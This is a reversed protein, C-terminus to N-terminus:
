ESSVLKIAVRVSMNGYYFLLETGQEIPQSATAIFARATNSYRTRIGIQGFNLMDLQPALFARPKGDVPLVWDRASIIAFWRAFSPFSYIKKLREPSCRQLPCGLGESLQKAFRTMAPVVVTAYQNVVIAKKSKALEQILSGVDPLWVHLCSASLPFCATQADICLNRM